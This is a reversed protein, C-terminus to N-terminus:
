ANWCPPELDAGRRQMEQECGCGLVHRHASPEQPCRARSATSDQHHTPQQCKPPPPLQHHQEVLQHHRRNQHQEEVAGRGLDGEREKGGHDEEGDDEADAREDVALEEVELCWAGEKVTWHRTRTANPTHLVSLLGDQDTFLFVPGAQTTSTQLCNAQVGELLQRTCSTDRHQPRCTADSKMWASLQKKPTM